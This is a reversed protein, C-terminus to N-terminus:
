TGIGADHHEIVDPLLLTLSALHWGESTSDASTAAAGVEEVTVAGPSHELLVSDGPRLELSEPNHLEVQEM